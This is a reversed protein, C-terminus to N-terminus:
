RTWAASSASSPSTCTASGALNRQELLADGIPATPDARLRQLALEADWDPGLLDPGLHGVLDDEKESRVLDLIVQFGVAETTATRLVM